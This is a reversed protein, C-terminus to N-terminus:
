FRARKRMRAEFVARPTKLADRLPGSSIVKRLRAPLMHEFAALGKPTTAHIASLARLVGRQAPRSEHMALLAAVVEARDREDLLPSRAITEGWDDFFPGIPLLLERSRRLGRPKRLALFRHNEDAMEAKNLVGARVFADGFRESPAHGLRTYIARLTAHEPKNPWADVVRSLDGLNHAIVTTVRLVDLPDGNAVLRLLVGNERALEEDVAASLRAALTQAGITLARGLAGARVSFWEGDHGSVREVVRASVLSVDWGAAEDIVDCAAALAAEDMEEFAHHRIRADVDTPVFTAVTCFHAALLARFYPLSADSAEYARQVAEVDALADRFSTARSSRDGDLVWGATNQVQEFLVRPSIAAM